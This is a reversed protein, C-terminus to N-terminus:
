SILVKLAINVGDRMAKEVIDTHPDYTVMNGEDQELPNGDIALIAGSEVDRLECIVFLTAVEMEVAKVGARQWLPLNSGLIEHPYFMDSTLVIGETISRNKKKAEQGMLAVIKGENFNWGQGSDWGDNPISGAVGIQGTAPPGIIMWRIDTIGARGTRQVPLLQYGLANMFHPIKHNEPDVAARWNHADAKSSNNEPITADYTPLHTNTYNIEYYFGDLETGLTACQGDGSLGVIDVKVTRVYPITPTGDKDENRVKYEITM